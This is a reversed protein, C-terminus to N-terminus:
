NRKSDTFVLNEPKLDCHIIKCHKIYVLGQLIQFVIPKLKSKIEFGKYGGEKLDFYLNKGLLEFVFCYHNRFLFHDIYSVIHQKYFELSEDCVTDRLRQMIAAEARCTSSLQAPMCKNIKVAVEKKTKHDLCM